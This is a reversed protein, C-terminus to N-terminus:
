FDSSCAMLICLAYLRITRTKRRGTWNKNWLKIEVFTDISIFHVFLYNTRNSSSQKSTLIRLRHIAMCSGFKSNVSSKVSNALKKLSKFNSSLSYKHRNIYSEGYNPFNNGMGSDSLIKLFKSGHKIAYMNLPRSMELTFKRCHRKISLAKGSYSQSKRYSKRINRKIKIEKPIRTM